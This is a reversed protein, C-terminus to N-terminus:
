YDNQSPKVIAFFAPNHRVSLRMFAIEKEGLEAKGILAIGCVHAQRDACIDEVESCPAEYEGVNAMVFMITAHPKYSPEDNINDVALLFFSKGIFSDLM